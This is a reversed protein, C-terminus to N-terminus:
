CNALPEGIRINRGAGRLFDATPMPRKGPPQVTKLDLFGKGCAILMTHGLAAVHGPESSAPPDQPAEVVQAEQIKLPGKSLPVFTGPWPNFARVQQELAQATRSFDLAGDSKKLIPAYTAQDHPQEIRILGDTKAKRLGELLTEAGLGALSETLSGGTENGSLAREKKLLMAGEDLGESLEMLTIGTKPDGQLIAHQIPSAGRLKPLLSAHINWTNATPAEFVAIPLIRGYAVVIALDLTLANMREALVGDKLKRPQEVPIEHQEALQKVPPAVLKKGRGKPKDPQCVALCVDDEGAQILAELITKAIEPTGFFALRM